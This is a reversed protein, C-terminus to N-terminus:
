SFLATVEAKRVVLWSSLSGGGGGGAFDHGPSARKVPSGFVASAACEAAAAAEELRLPLLFIAAPGECGGGCSLSATEGGGASRGDGDVSPTTEGGICRVGRVPM